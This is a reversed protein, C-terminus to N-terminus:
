AACCAAESEPERTAPKSVACLLACSFFSSHLDSALVPRSSIATQWRCTGRTLLSEPLTSRSSALQPQFGSVLLPINFRCRLKRCHERVRRKGSAAIPAREQDRIRAPRNVSIGHTGAFLVRITVEASQVSRRIRAEVRVRPAQFDRGNAGGFGQLDTPFHCHAM